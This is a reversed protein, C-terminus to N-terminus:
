AQDGYAVFVFNMDAAITTTITSSTATLCQIRAASATQSKVNAFPSDQLAATQGYPTAIACYSASSFAVTFNISIDGLGNDTVSTVNYSSIISPTGGSIQIQAWAKPMAPHYQQRGPSVFKAISTATEQEAQTAAQKETIMPYWTSGDYEESQSITSNRRFDGPLPSGPREATTGRAPRTRDTTGIRTQLTAIDTQATAMESAAPVSLNTRAGAATTAGTGGSAVPLAGSGVPVGPDINDWSYNALTSGSGILATGNIETQIKYTGAALYRIAHRGSAGVIPNAAPVTLASDSYVTKLNTTGVDCVFVRPASYPVGNADVIPIFSTIVNVAM